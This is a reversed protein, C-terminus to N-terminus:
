SRENEDEHQRKTKKMERIAKCYLLFVCINAGAILLCIIDLITNIITLM